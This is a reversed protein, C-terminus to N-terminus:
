SLDMSRVESTDEETAAGAKAVPHEVTEAPMPEETKVIGLNMGTVAEGSRPADEDPVISFPTDSVSESVHTISLQMGNVTANEGTAPINGSNSNGSVESMTIAMGRSVAETIAANGLPDKNAEANSRLMSMGGAVAEAIAADGLPDEDVPVSLIEFGDDSEEEKNETAAMTMAMGGAVAAAIGEQTIGTGGIGAASLTEESLWEANSEKVRQKVEELKAEEEETLEVSEVIDETDAESTGAWDNFEQMEEFIVALEEETFEDYEPAPEEVGVSSTDDAPVYGTHQKGVLKTGMFKKFKYAHADSWAWEKFGMSQEVASRSMYRNRDFNPLVHYDDATYEAVEAIGSEVLWDLTCKDLRINYIEGSSIREALEKRVWQKTNTPADERSSKSVWEWYLYMPATVQTGFLTKVASKVSLKGTLMLVELENPTWLGMSKLEKINTMNIDQVYDPGMMLKIKKLITVDTTPGLCMNPKNSFQDIVFWDDHGFVQELDPIPVAREPDDKAEVEAMSLLLSCSADYPTNDRFFTYGHGDDFYPINNRFPIKISEAGLLLKLKKVQELTLDKENFIESVIDEINDDKIERDKYCVEVLAKTLPSCKSQIMEYTPVQTKLGTRWMEAAMCPMSFHLYRRALAKFELNGYRLAKRSLARTKKKPHQLKQADTYALELVCLAQYMYNQLFM